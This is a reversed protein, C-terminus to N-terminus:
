KNLLERAKILREALVKPLSGPSKPQKEFRELIEVEENYRKEKRYIVALQEYYWPAVGLGKKKAEKETENVLKLLPEIAEPYNKEEMLQKVRDVYDTFHKGKVRETQKFHYKKEIPGLLQFLIEVFDNESVYTKLLRPKVIELYGGEIILQSIEKPVYGIFYRKNGLFAKRCGIVKIANKDYKNDEEQELELWCGETNQSFSMAANKQFQIGAVELREEFIMYGEPIEQEQLHFKKDAM